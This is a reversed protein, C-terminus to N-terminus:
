ISKMEGRQNKYLQNKLYLPSLKTSLEEQALWRRYALQAITTISPAQLEEIIRAHPIHSMIKEKYLTAGNGILCLPKDAPLLTLLLELSACGVATVVGDQAIAYYLDNNFADLLAVHYEGPLPDREALLARLGDIGILPLATAFGLGNVTAIVVRLTTFPAPGQNAAIYSLDSLTLNHQKLLASILPIAQAAADKKHTSASAMLTQDRFLACELIEYNNQIVLSYIPM